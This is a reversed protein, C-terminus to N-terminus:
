GRDSRPPDSRPPDSRPETVITLEDLDGLEDTDAVVVVPADRLERGVWYPVIQGIAIALAVIVLLLRTLALQSGIESLTTQALAQADDTSARAQALVDTTGGVALQVETVGAALDTLQAELDGGSTSFTGLDDSVSQVADGLPAIDARLDGIADSLTVDPDYDPALPIRSLQSLTTDITDAISEVSALGSDVRDLTAPLAAALEATSGAVDTTTQIGDGVATITGSLTGLTGDVAEIIDDAVDLSADAAALSEEALELGQKNADSLEGLFRWGVVAGVVASIVGVYAIVVMITGASRRSLGLHRPEPRPEGNGDHTM